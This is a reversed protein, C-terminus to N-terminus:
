WVPLFSGCRSPAPFSRPPRLSMSPPERALFIRSNAHGPLTVRPPSMFSSNAPLSTPEASFRPLLLLLLPPPLWPLWCIPLNSARDPSCCSSVMPQAHVDDVRRVLQQTDILVRDTIRTWHQGPIMWLTTLHGHDSHVLSVDGGALVALLLLFLSSALAPLRASPSRATVLSRTTVLDRLTSTM